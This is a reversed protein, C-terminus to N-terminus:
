GYIIGQRRAQTVGGGRSTVRRPQGAGGRIGERESPLNKPGVSGTGHGAREWTAMAMGRV